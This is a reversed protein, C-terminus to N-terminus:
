RKLRKEWIRRAEAFSCLTIGDGDFVPVMGNEFPLGPGACLLMPELPWDVSADTKVPMGTLDALVRDYAGAVPTVWRAPRWQDKLRAYRKPDQLRNLALFIRSADARSSWDLEALVAAPKECLGLDLLIAAAELSGDKKLMAIADADGLAALEAAARRDLFRAVRDRLYALVVTCGAKALPRAMALDLSEKLAWVLDDACAADGLAARAVRSQKRVAPSPDDALPRLRDIPCSGLSMLATVAALRVEESSDSLLAQIATARDTAHISALARVALARVRAVPDKLLNAVSCADGPDGFTGLLHVALQRDSAVSSALLPALHPRILAPDVDVLYSLTSSETPRQERRALEVLAAVAEPAGEMALDYLASVQDELGCRSLAAM